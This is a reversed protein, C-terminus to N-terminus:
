KNSARERAKKQEDMAWELYAGDMARLVAVFLDMTDFELRAKAAYETIKSVPIPGIAMGLQRETSLSWFARM